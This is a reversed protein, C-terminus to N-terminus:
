RFASSRWKVSFRFLRVLAVDVALGFAWYEANCQTWQRYLALIGFHSQSSRHM